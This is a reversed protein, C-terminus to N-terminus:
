KVLEAVQKGYLIINDIVNKNAEENQYLPEPAELPLFPTPFLWVNYKEDKIKVESWIYFRREGVLAIEMQTYETGDNYGRDFDGVYVDYKFKEQRMSLKQHIDDCVLEIIELDEDTLKQLEYTGNTDYNVDDAGFWVTDQIDVSHYRNIEYRDYNEYRSLKYADESGKPIFLIADSENDYYFDTEVMGDMDRLKPVGFLYDRLIAEEIWRIYDYLMDGHNKIEEREENKVVIKSDSMKDCGTLLLLISLTFLITFKKMQGGYIYLLPKSLKM